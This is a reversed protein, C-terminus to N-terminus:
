RVCGAGGMANGLVSFCRCLCDPFRLWDGTTRSRPPETSIRQHAKIKEHFKLFGPMSQSATTVSVWPRTISNGIRADMM